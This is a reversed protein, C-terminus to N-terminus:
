FYNFHIGKGVFAMSTFDEKTTMAYYTLGVTAALTASAALMVSDPTYMYCVYSVLYSEFLTFLGMLYYNTPVQRSLKGLVIMSRLTCLALLTVISGILAVYFTWYNNMQFRVFARSNFTLLVTAVTVALQISLTSYVKKVFNQRASHSLSQSESYM